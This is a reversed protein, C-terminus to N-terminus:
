FTNTARTMGESFNDFVFSITKSPVDEYGYLFCMEKILIFKNAFLISIFIKHTKDDTEIVCFFRNSFLLLSDILQPEANFSCSSQNTAISFQCTIISSYSKHFSSHFPLQMFKKQYVNSRNEKMKIGNNIIRLLNKPYNFKHLKTPHCPKLTQM